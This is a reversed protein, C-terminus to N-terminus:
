EFMWENNKMCARVRGSMDPLLKGVAAYFTSRDYDALVTPLTGPDYEDFVAQRIAAMCSVVDTRTALRRADEALKAAEEDAKRKEEALRL